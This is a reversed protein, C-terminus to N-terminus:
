ANSSGVTIELASSKRHGTRTVPTAALLHWADGGIRVGAQGAARDKVLEAAQSTSTVHTAVAGDGASYISLELTQKINIQQQLHLLLSHLKEKSVDRVNPRILM